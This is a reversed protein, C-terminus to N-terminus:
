FITTVTGLLKRSCLIWNCSLYFIFTNCSLTSSFSYNVTRISEHHPFQKRQPMENRRHKNTQGPFFILTMKMMTQTMTIYGATQISFNPSSPLVTEDYNQIKSNKFVPKCLHIHRIHNIEDRIEYETLSLRNLDHNFFELFM